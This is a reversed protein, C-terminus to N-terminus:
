IQQFFLLKLKNLCKILQTSKWTNTVFYNKKKNNATRVTSPTKLGKSACTGLSSLLFWSFIPHFTSSLISRKKKEKKGKREASETWQNSDSIYQSVVRWVDETEKGKGKRNGFYVEYRGCLKVSCRRRDGCDCVSWWQTPTGTNLDRQM